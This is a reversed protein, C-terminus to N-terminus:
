RESLEADQIVIDGRSIPIFSRILGFEPAGTDPSPCVYPFGPPWGSPDAPGSWRPSILDLQGSDPTGRDVFFLAFLWGVKSPDGPSTVSVGGVVGNNGRVALCTVQSNGVASVHDGDAAHGTATAHADISFNTFGTRCFDIDPVFCGPDTGGGGYLRDQAALQENPGGSSYALGAVVLAILALGAPLALRWWRSRRPTVLGQHSGNM